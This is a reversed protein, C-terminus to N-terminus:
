AAMVDADRCGMVVAYRRRWAVAGVRRDFIPVAVMM